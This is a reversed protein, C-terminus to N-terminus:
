GQGVKIKEAIADLKPHILLTRIREVGLWKRFEKDWNSVLSSPAVVVAKKIAAGGLEGGQKLLTWTLAICQLTKGLGM